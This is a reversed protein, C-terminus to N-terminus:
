DYSARRRHACSQALRLRCCSRTARGCGIRIGSRDLVREARRPQACREVRSASEHGDVVDAARQPIHARVHGRNQTMRGLVQGPAHGRVQDMGVVAVIDDLLHGAHELLRVPDLRDRESGHVCVTRPAPELRLDDVEDLM